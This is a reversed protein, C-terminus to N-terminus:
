LRCILLAFSFFRVTIMAFGYRIIRRSTRKVISSPAQLPPEAICAAAGGGLSPPCGGITHVVGAM